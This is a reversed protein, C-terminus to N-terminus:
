SRNRRSGGTSGRKDSSPKALEAKVTTGLEQEGGDVLPFPLARVASKIRFNISLALGGIKKVECVIRRCPVFSIEIVM